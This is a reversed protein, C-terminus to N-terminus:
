VAPVIKDGFMELFDDRRAEQDIVWLHKIPYCEPTYEYHGRVEGDVFVRVHYQYVFGEAKRLSVIEGRDRWAIFHNGFGKGVLYMAFSEPTVGPALHGILYPQRGPSEDPAFHNSRLGLFQATSRVLPHLPTYVSWFAYKLMQGISQPRGMVATPLKKTWDYTHATSVSM